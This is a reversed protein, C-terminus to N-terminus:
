CFRTNMAIETTKTDVESALYHLFAKLSQVARPLRCTLCNQAMQDFSADIFSPARVVDGTPREILQQRASQVLSMWWQKPFHVGGNPLAQYPVVKEAPCYQCTVWPPLNAANWQVSSRPSAASDDISPTGVPIWSLNTALTSFEAECRLIYQMLHQYSLAPISSLERAGQLTLDKLTFRLSARAAIRAEDELGHSVAIAYVRMPAASAHKSLSHRLLKTTAGVDYKVAASLVAALEDLDNLEPNDYPYCFHLLRDIIKSDESVDVVPLGEKLEQPGGPSGHKANSSAPPSLPSSDPSGKAEAQPLSFMTEFFSSAEALICKHVHFDVGDSSRLVLDASPKNFPHGAEHIKSM